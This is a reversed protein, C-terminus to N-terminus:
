WLFAFFSVFIALVIWYNANIQIHYGLDSGIDDLFSKLLGNFQISFMGTKIVYMAIIKNSARQRSKIFYSLDIAM